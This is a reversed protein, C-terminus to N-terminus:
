SNSVRVKPPNRVFDDHMNHDITQSRGVTQFLKKFTIDQDTRATGDKRAAKLFQHLNSM